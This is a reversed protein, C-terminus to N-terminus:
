VKSFGTSPEQSGTRDGSFGGHRAHQSPFSTTHLDVAGCLHFGSGSILRKASRVVM